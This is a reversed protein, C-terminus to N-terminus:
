STLLNPSVHLRLLRVDGTKVTSPTVTVDGFRQAEACGQATVVGAAILLSAALKNFFFM